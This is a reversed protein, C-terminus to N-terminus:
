LLANRKQCSRARHFVRGVIGVALLLWTAPEPVAQVEGAGLPNGVGKNFNNAFVTLDDANVAGNFDIDGDIQTAGSTRGFNSAFVTLDDADVQGNQDIDGYYTYKLLISNATVPQGSFDTHAAIANDVLLLGTDASPNNAATTSAIGLGKWNGGNFGQQLQNYIRAFDAAKNAATSQVVADNDNLDLRATWADPAGAVSVTGVVSTGSPTGNRAVAVTGSTVSLGAARLNNVTLTGPGAKNLTVGSTALAAISLNSAPPTVTILVNDALTLPAAITHNGSLVNITADGTATELTLPNSGGITYPNANDFDIKAVTIPTNVTVVRPQTIVSGFVANASTGNPVGGNWNTAASWNGNSDIAWGPTVPVVSGIATEFYDVYGTQTTTASHVIGTYLDVEANLEPFPVAGPGNGSTTSDGSAAPNTLNNWNVSWLGSRRRLSVILDDGAAFANPGSSWGFDPTAGENAALYIQNPGHFGARISRDSRTGIYIAFQHSPVSVDDFRATITADSGAVDNLLLGITDAFQLDVGGGIGGLNGTSSMIQLYGPRAQLSLLPDNAPISSGTGPLRHTFGTGNGFKDAITGPVPADFTLQVSM